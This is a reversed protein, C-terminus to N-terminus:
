KAIRHPQRIPVVSARHAARARLPRQTTTAPDLGARRVALARQRRELEDARRAAHAAKSSDFGEFRRIPERDRAFEAVWTAGCAGCFWRAPQRTGDADTTPPLLGLPSPHHCRGFWWVMAIGLGAVVVVAAAQGGLTALAAVILLVFLVSAALRRMRAERPTRRPDVVVKSPRRAVPPTCSGLWPLTSLSSGQSSDTCEGTRM